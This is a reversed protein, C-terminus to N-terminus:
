KRASMVGNASQWEPKQPRGFGAVAAFLPNRAEQRRSSLTPRM